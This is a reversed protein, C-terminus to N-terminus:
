TLIAALTYCNSTGARNELLLTAIELQGYYAAWHLATGNAVAIHQYYTSGGRCINVKEKKNQLWHAITKKDGKEIAQHISILLICRICVCVKAVLQASSCAYM